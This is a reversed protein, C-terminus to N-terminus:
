CIILVRSENIHVHQQWKCYRFIDMTLCSSNMNLLVEPKSAVVVKMAEAPISNAYISDALISFANLLEDESFAM